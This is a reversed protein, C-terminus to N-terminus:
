SRGQAQGTCGANLTGTLWDSCGKLGCRPM